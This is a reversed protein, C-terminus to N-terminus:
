ASLFQGKGGLQQKYWLTQSNSRPPLHTFCLLNCTSYWNGNVTPTPALRAFGLSRVIAPSLPRWCGRVKLPLPILWQQSSVRAAFSKTLHQHNGSNENDAIM